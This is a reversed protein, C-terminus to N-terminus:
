VLVPLGLMGATGFVRRYREIEEVPGTAKKFNDSLKVAPRGDASVVKCVLSLPDYLDEGRPDCARFDNTANTGWGYALGVRGAFHRHIAAIDEGYPDQGPAVVDLGDSFLVFRSLPDVGRAKLWAIIEEGAEVPPKSDPRYGRWTRAVWDPADALFQTTGFTDPLAVLLNGSYTEQWQRLLEYQSAKLAADDDALAALVMPLEHANTGKSDLGHKFALFANSTGVFRPGLVQAMARVAWEQWLFSHRRRTGFESLALGELDRLRDLKALLRSKARAYLFDLELEGRQRHGARSKLESIIALAYIEWWTTEAWSGSFTLVYQGDEVRLDYEPLRLQRLFDIFAPKFIHEVGYFTAGAIWILENTRFRLARVHDLQARLEAEPIIEALRVRCTRNILAFTVRTDGFREFIFQGMLLKYFDTDLLSRIIPDIQFSHDHARKAFDM